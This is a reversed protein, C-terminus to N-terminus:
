FVELSSLKQFHDFSSTHESKIYAPMVLRLLRAQCFFPAQLLRTYKAMSETNIKQEHTKNTRFLHHSAVCMYDCM